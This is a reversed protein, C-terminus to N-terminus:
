GALGKWFDSIKLSRRRGWDIGGEAPFRVDAIILDAKCASPGGTTHPEIAFVWDFWTIKSPDTPMTSIGGTQAAFPLKVTQAVATIQDATM